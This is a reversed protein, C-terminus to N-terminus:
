YKKYTIIFVIIFLIFLPIFIYITVPAIMYLLHLSILFLGLTSLIILIACTTIISLMICDTIKNIDIEKEKIKNLLSM